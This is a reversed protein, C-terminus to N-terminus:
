FGKLRRILIGMSDVLMLDMYNRTKKGMAIFHLKSTLVKFTM